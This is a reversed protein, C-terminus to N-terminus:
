LIIKLSVKTIAVKFGGSAPLTVYLEDLGETTVTSSSPLTLATPAPLAVIVALKAPLSLYLAASLTLTGTVTDM